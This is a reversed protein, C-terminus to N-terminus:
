QAPVDTAPGPTGPDDAKHPGPKRKVLRQVPIGSITGITKIFDDGGMPRGTSSHAHFDSIMEKPAAVSLFERWNKVIQGIKSVIVLGDNRNQLHAKASSWKYDEAKKVLKARVPNMEIYRAAALLYREEMPFSAFREQWLHGKWGERSNIRLTYRRHAEGIAKHLGTMDHPVAILHVHNTMLCYAWIEVKFHACWEAMLKIYTRFDDETFFVPQRRNGRQTVHHPFGPVVIRALRAM